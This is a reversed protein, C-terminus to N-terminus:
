LERNKWKISCGISPQQEAPVPEGSILCDLVNRIDKGTVPIDNGPRSADLQGRYVLELDGNYVFFDPTCTAEYQKATEQTEDYLYPFPYNESLATAKMKEPGDEPYADADNSSIAIFAIGTERYDNALKVLGENVHIVFPCHNCLFMIITAVSGKLEQLSKIEGSVTDPLQFGPAKTGLSAM